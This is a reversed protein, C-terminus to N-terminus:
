PVTVWVLDGFKSFDNSPTLHELFARHVCVKKGPHDIARQFQDRSEQFSKTYQWRHKNAWEFYTM